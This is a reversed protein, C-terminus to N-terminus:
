EAEIRVTTNTVNARFLRGCFGCEILQGNETIAKRNWNGCTRCLWNATQPVMAPRAKTEVDKRFSRVKRPKQRTKTAM